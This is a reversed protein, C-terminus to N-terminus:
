AAAEPSTQERPDADTTVGRSAKKAAEEAAKKEDDFAKALALVDEPPVLDVIHVASLPIFRWGRYAGAPIFAYFGTAAHVIHKVQGQTTVDKGNATWAKSTGVGMITYPHYMHLKSGVPLLRAKM